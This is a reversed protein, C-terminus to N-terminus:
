RWKIKEGDLWDVFRQVFPLCEVARQGDAVPERAFSQRNTREKLPPPSLAAANFDDTFKFEDGRKFFPKLRLFNQDVARGLMM